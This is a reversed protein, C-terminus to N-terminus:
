VNTEIYELSLPSSQQELETTLIVVLHKYLSHGRRCM